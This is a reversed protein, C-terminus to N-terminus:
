DEMMKTSFEKGMSEWIDEEVVFDFIGRETKGYVGEYYRVNEGMKPMQVIDIRAGYSVREKALM